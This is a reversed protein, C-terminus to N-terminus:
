IPWSTGYNKQNFHDKKHSENQMAIEKYWQEPIKNEMGADLIGTVALWYWIM